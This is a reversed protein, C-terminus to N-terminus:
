FIFVSCFMNVNTSSSYRAIHADFGVIHALKYCCSVQYYDLITSFRQLRKEVLSPDTYIQPLEEILVLVEPLDEFSQLACGLGVLGADDEEM